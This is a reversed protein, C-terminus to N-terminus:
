EGKSLRALADLANDDIVDGVSIGALVEIWETGNHTFRNGLRVQRLTAQENNLRYVGSFEGRKLVAQVPVALRERDGMTVSVKVWEGPHVEANDPLVARLRVSHRSSDAYPFLQTKDITYKEGDVTVSSPIAATNQHNAVLTSAIRQPVDAVVRFSETSFGSMLPAGPAVLEGVEIHRATIIGAYPATVKTYSLQTSAQVLAAKAVEVGAAASKAQAASRDFEGQSLTGQKHLRTNRKFLTQADDNMAKAQALAAEAQAVNAKQQTADIEILLQGQAVRDGVDGNVRIVTGQTQASITGASVAEVTGDLVYVDASRVPAVTLPAALATASTIMTVLSARLVTTIGTHLRTASMSPAYKSM